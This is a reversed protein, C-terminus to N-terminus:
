IELAREFSVLRRISANYRSYATYQNAHYLIAYLCHEPSNSLTLFNPFEVGISELRPKGILLLCSNETLRGAILDSIGAVIFDGGPLSEAFSSLEKFNIM